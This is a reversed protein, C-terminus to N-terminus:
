GTVAQIFISSITATPHTTCLPKMLPPYSPVQFHGYGSNNTHVQMFQSMLSLGNQVTVNINDMTNNMRDMSAASRSTAEEMLDLMRSKLRLEEQVAHEAPLKRKMRDSRHGDLRAQLLDRRHSVVAATPLTGNSRSSEPLDTSHELSPSSSPGPSSEEMDFLDGTEVGASNPHTAASGGWIQECLEFFMYVVRGQGSRRGLDVAQRYKIRVQKLKATLQGQSITNQEHPFDKETPTRPYQAQFLDAIETYKPKCSEWDVNDQIKTTKYELTVSLLLEVEDDSWPFLEKRARIVAMKTQKNQKHRVCM